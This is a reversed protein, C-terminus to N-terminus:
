GKKEKIIKGLGILSDYECSVVKIEQYSNITIKKEINAGKLLYSEVSLTYQMLKERCLIREEKSISKEEMNESM